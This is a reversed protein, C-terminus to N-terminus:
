GHDGSAGSSPPTTAKPAGVDDRAALAFPAHTLALDAAVAAALIALLIVLRRM